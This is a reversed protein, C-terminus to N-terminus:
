QAEGRNLTAIAADCRQQLSQAEDFASEKERGRAAAYFVVAPYAPDPLKILDVVGSTSPFAVYRWLLTSTGTATPLLGMKMGGAVFVIPMDTVARWFYNRDVARLLHVSVLRCIKPSRSAHLETERLRLFNSPLRYNPLGAVTYTTAELFLQPILEDALASAVYNQGDNIWIRIDAEAYFDTETEGLLNQVQDILQAENPTAM